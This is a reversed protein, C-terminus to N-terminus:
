NNFKDVGSLCKVKASKTTSEISVSIDGISYIDDLIALQTLNIHNFMNSKFQVNLIMAGPLGYSSKEGNISTFNLNSLSPLDITCRDTSTTVKSHHSHGKVIIGGNLSSIKLDDIRHKVIISDDKINLVGIGYGLPVIDHRYSNLVYRIDQGTKQLISYDHNGLVTFTLISKDFPYKKILYDVQERPNCIVQNKKCFVGDLIDGGCIINHIGNKICYNYIKDMVGQIEFSSGFHMDSILFATYTNSVNSTIVNVESNLYPLKKQVYLIDGTDYYKRDFDFGKNKIMTLINYIQKNSLGLIESIQNITNGEKILKLLEKTLDSM